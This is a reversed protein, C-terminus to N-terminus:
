KKEPKKKPEEKPEEPQKTFVEVAEAIVKAEQLNFAGKSTALSVASILTQLAKNTDM